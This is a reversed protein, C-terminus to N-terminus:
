EGTEEHSNKLSGDEIFNHKQVTVKHRGECM